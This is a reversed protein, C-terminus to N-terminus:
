KRGLQSKLRSASLGLHSTPRSSPLGFQYRPRTASFIQDSVTTDEKKPTPRSKSGPVINRQGHKGLM